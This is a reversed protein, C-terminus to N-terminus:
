LAKLPLPVGLIDATLRSKRNARIEQSGCVPKACAWSFEFPNAFAEDRVKLASSARVKGLKGLAAILDAWETTAEFSKLAKDVASVYARYKSSQQVPPQQAAANSTTAESQHVSFFVFVTGSQHKTAQQRSMQM